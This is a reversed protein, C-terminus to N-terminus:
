KLLKEAKIVKAMIEDFVKESHCYWDIAEKLMKRAKELDM